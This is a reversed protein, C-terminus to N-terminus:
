EKNSELQKIVQQEISSIITVVQDYSGKQLYAIIIQLQQPTFEINVNKTLNIQQSM